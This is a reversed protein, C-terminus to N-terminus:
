TTKHTKVWAKLMNVARPGDLSSMAGIWPPVEPEGYQMANPVTFAERMLGILNEGSFMWETEGAAEHPRVTTFAERVDFARNVRGGFKSREFADYLAVDLDASTSYQDVLERAPQVNKIIRGVAKQLQEIAQKDVGATHAACALIYHYAPLIWDDTGPSVEGPLLTQRLGSWGNFYASTKVIAGSLIGPTGGEMAVKVSEVQEQVGRELNKMAEITGFRKDGADKFMKLIAQLKYYRLDDWYGSDVVTDSLPGTPAVLGSLMVSIVTASESNDAEIVYKHMVRLKELDNALARVVEDNGFDRAQQLLGELATRLKGANTSALFKVYESTTVVRVRERAINDRGAQAVDFQQVADSAYGFEQFQQVNGWFAIPDTDMVKTDPALLLPDVYDPANAIARFTAVPETAFENLAALMINIREIDVDLVRVYNRIADVDYEAEHDTVFRSADSKILQLAAILKGARRDILEDVLQAPLALQAREADTRGAVARKDQKYAVTTLSSLNIAKRRREIFAKLADLFRPPEESAESELDSSEPPPPEESAESEEDSSEPQPPEESSESEEDSSEPPPPSPPPTPPPTPPKPPPLAVPVVAVVPPPTPKLKKAPQLECTEDDLERARIRFWALIKALLTDHGTRDARALRTNYATILAVQEEYIARTAAALGNAASLVDNKEDAVKKCAEVRAVATELAQLAPSLQGFRRKVDAEHREITTSIERVTADLADRDALRMSRRQQALDRTAVAAQVAEMAANREAPTTGEKGMERSYFLRRAEASEMNRQDEAMENVLIQMRSRAHELAEIKSSIEARADDQMYSLGTTFTSTITVPLMQPKAQDLAEIALVDPKRQTFQEWLSNMEMRVTVWGRTYPSNRAASPRPHTTEDDIRTFFAERVGEMGPYARAYDRLSNNTTVEFKVPRYRLVIARCAAEFGRYTDPSQKFMAIMPSAAQIIHVAFGYADAYAQQAMRAAERAPRTDHATTPADPRPKFAPPHRYGGFADSLSAEGTKDFVYEPLRREVIRDRVKADVVEFEFFSEYLHRPIPYCGWEESWLQDEVPGGGRKAIYRACINRWAAYAESELRPPM